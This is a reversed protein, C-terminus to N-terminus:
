CLLEILRFKTATVSVDLAMTTQIVLVRLSVRTGAPSVRTGARAGPQDTPERM